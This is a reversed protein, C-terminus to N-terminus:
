QEQQEQKYLYFIDLIIGKFTEYFPHEIKHGGYFVIQV